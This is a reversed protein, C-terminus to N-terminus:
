AEQLKLEVEWYDVFKLKSKFEICRVTYTNNDVINLWNFTNAKFHAINKVFNELVSFDSQKMGNWQLTWTTRSRTFKRRSQVTGDEFKSTISNDEYEPEFPYEPNPLTPFDM